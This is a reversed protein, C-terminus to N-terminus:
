CLPDSNGVLSLRRMVPNKQSMQIRQLMRAKIRVVKAAAYTVAASVMKGASATPDRVVM